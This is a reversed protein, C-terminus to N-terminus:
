AVWFFCVKKELVRREMVFLFFYTYAHRLTELIPLNEYKKRREQVFARDGEPTMHTDEKQPSFPIKKAGGADEEKEETSRKRGCM